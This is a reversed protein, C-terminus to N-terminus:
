STAAGGTEAAMAFEEWTAGVQAGILVVLSSFYLWSLTVIVGALAGYTAQYRMAGGLFRGFAWKALEWGFTAVLAAIWIPRASPPKQRNPTFRYLLAFMSFSLALTLIKASLSWFLPARNFFLDPLRSAVTQGLSLGLSVGSWLVFLAGVGIMLSWLAMQHRWFPRPESGPFMRTLVTALTDFYARASWLLSAFALFGATQSQSAGQMARMADEIAVGVTVGTGAPFFSSVFVSFGSMARADGSLFRALIAVGALALPFVSLLGYFALAAAMLACQDENWRAVFRAGFDLWPRLLPARKALFELAPPM